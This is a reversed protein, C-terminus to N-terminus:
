EIGFDVKTIRYEQLGCIEVKSEDFLALNQSNIPGVSSRYLVGDYGNKKILECLYQTPLYELTAAWPEIPKSLDNALKDLFSISRVLFSLDEDQKSFLSISKRPDSLDVLTLLNGIKFEAVSVKEAPHPRVEAIAADKSNALYLYPIGLPNARGGTAKEKPPMGMEKNTFPYGQQIRARYWISSEISKAMNRFGLSLEQENPIQQPFFRNKNKLENQFSDWLLISSTYNGGSIVFKRKHFDKGLIADLLLFAQSKPITPFMGWDLKMLEYFSTGNEDPFYADVVLEFDERLVEPEVLYQNTAGCYDCKGRAKPSFCIKESLTEDDFCSPCCNM